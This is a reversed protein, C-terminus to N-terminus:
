FIEQALWDSLWSNPNHTVSKQANSSLAAIEDEITTDSTTAIGIPSADDDQPTDFQHLSARLQQCLRSTYQFSDVSAVADILGQCCDIIVAFTAPESSRKSKALEIGFYVYAVTTGLFSSLSARLLGLPYAERAVQSMRYFSTATLDFASKMTDELSESWTDTATSTNQIQCHRLGLRFILLSASGTVNHQQEVDVGHTAVSSWMCIVMGHHLYELLLSKLANSRATELNVINSSTTKEREILYKLSTEWQMESPFEEKWIGIERVGRNLDQMRVGSRKARPSIFHVAISRVFFVLRLSVELIYGDFQAYRKTQTVINAPSPNAELIREQSGNAQYISYHGLPGATRAHKLGKETMPRPALLTPLDQDYDDNGIKPMVFNGFSHLTDHAFIVWFMRKRRFAEATSICVGNGDMMPKDDGEVLAARHKPAENIRLRMAMEILFSLSLPDKNCIDREKNKKASEQSEKEFPSLSLLDVSEYSYESMLYIAEIVDAANALKYWEAWDREKIIEGYRKVCRSRLKFKATNGVEAIPPELLSAGLCAVALMLLEDTPPGSRDELPLYFNLYAERFREAHLIPRIPAVFRFFTKFCCDLLSRTMGEVGLLGQSVDLPRPLDAVPLRSSSAHQDDYTVNPPDVQGYQQLQDRQIELIRKGNRNKSKAKHLFTCRFGHSLCLSCSLDPEESPSLQDYTLGLKRAREDVKDRNDCRIKRLRCADCSPRQTRPKPPHKRKRGPDLAAQAAASSM